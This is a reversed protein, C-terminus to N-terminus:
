EANMDMPKLLQIGKATDATSTCRSLLPLQFETAPSGNITRIIGHKTNIGTIFCAIQPPFFFLPILRIKKGEELLTEAVHV